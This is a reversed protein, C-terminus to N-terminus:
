LVYPIFVARKLKKYEDGFTKKLRQNKKVAWVYMQGAGVAMFLWSLWNGVMIAFATWALVEFFYNPCAVLDFGYGYPIVYKKSGGSRLNALALHTKLNSIEAFMWLAVIATLSAKSWDNTHFLWRTLTGRSEIVAPNQSAFIFVSNSLGSLIWYHTCNKIINFAPMTANSFRHVFITELERKVFHLVALLMAAKQTPTKTWLDANKYGYLQPSYYILPFILIPGLYELIYVMRWSAQPGLDKAYLVFKDGKESKQPDLGNDILNKSYDLPIQRTSADGVWSLRVRHPSTSQAAALLDVLSQVPLQVDYEDTSFKKLSKSRPIVEVQVMKICKLIRQRDFQVSYRPPDWKDGM